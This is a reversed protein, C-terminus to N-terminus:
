RRGPERLHGLSTSRRGLQFPLEQTVPSLGISESTQPVSSSSGGTKELKLSKAVETGPILSFAGEGEECGGGRWQGCSFGLEGSIIAKAVVVPSEGFSSIANRLM